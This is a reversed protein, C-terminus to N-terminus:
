RSEEGGRFGSDDVPIIVESAGGNVRAVGALWSRLRACRGIGQAQQLKAEIQERSGPFRRYYEEIPLEEGPTSRQRMQRM